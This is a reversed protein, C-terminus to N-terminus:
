NSDEINKPSKVWNGDGTRGHKFLIYAERRVHYRIVNNPPVKDKVAIFKEAFVLMHERWISAHCPDSNCHVCCSLM